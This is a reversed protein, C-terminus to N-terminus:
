VQFSAAEANQLIDSLTIRSSELRDSVSSGVSSPSQTVLAMTERQLVKFQM